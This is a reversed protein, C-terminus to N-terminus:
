VEKIWNLNWSGGLLFSWKRMKLLIVSPGPANHLSVIVIHALCSSIHLTVDRHICYMYTPILAEHNVCPCAKQSLCQECLVALAFEQNYLYM